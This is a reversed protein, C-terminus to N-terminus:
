ENYYCNVIEGYYITHCDGSKYWKNNEEQYWKSRIVDDLFKLDMPHKYVIKCEYVMHCNRIAPSKVIQSNILTLNCDKIKDYDRGSKSGCFGIAKNMKNDFPISITFDEGNELLEHTYRSERVLVTFIPRGWEYGINGWGITMTNVKGDKDKVTLFAGRQEMNKLSDVLNLTYDFDM